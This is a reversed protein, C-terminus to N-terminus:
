NILMFCKKVIKPYNKDFASFLKRQNVNETAGLV